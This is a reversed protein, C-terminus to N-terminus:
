AQRSEARRKARRPSGAREPRTRWVGAAAGQEDAPQEHGPALALAVEALQEDGLDQGQGEATLEGIGEVKGQLAGDGAVAALQQRRWPKTGAPSLVSARATSIRQGMTRLRLTSVATFAGKLEEGRTSAAMAGGVAAQLRRQCLQLGSRQHEAQGGADDVM